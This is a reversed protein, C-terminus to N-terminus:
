VKLYNPPAEHLYRIPYPQTIISGGKQGHKSMTSKEPSSSIYGGRYAGRSKRNCKPKRLMRSYKHKKSCKNKPKKTYKIKRYTRKRGGGTCAGCQANPDIMM